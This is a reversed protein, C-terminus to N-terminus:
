VERHARVLAPLDVKSGGPVVSVRRAEPLVGQAASRAQELLRVDVGNEIGECLLVVADLLSM